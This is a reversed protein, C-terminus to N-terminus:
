EFLEQIAYIWLGCLVILLLDSEINVQQWCRKIVDPVPPDSFLHIVWETHSMHFMRFYFEIVIRMWDSSKLLETGVMAFWMELISLFRFIFSESQNFNFSVKFIDNHWFQISESVQLLPLNNTQSRTHITQGSSDQVQIFDLNTYM